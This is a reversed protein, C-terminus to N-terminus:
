EKGAEIGSVNTDYFNPTGDNGVYVFTMERNLTALAVAISFPKSGATADVCIQQQDYQEERAIIADRVATSCDELNNPDVIEPQTPLSVAGLPWTSLLPSIVAIFDDFRESSEKSAFLHVERLPHDAHEASKKLEHWIIRLPQQWNWGACSGKPDCLKELVDLWEQANDPRPSSAIGVAIQKATSLKSEWHTYTHPTNAKIGRKNDAQKDSLFLLVAAHAHKGGSPSATASIKLLMDRLGWLQWSMFLLSLSACVIKLAATWDFLQWFQWTFGEILADISNEGNVALFGHNIVLFVVFVSAWFRPRRGFWRNLQQMGGWFRRGLANFFGHNPKQSIRTM